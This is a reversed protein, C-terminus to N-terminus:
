KEARNKNIIAVLILIFAALRVVYLFTNDEITERTVTLAMRQAALLWFALAFYVFLSDRTKKWFRLFFLGAVLYAMSMAGEIFQIM